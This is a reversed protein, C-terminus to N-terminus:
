LGDGKFQRLYNIAKKLLDIDDKFNGLGHNCTGCLLGRVKGTKHNHDVSLRKIGAYRSKAIEPNGCIACVGKQNEVMEDFDNLTIKYVSKLFENKIQDKTRNRNRQRNKEKREGVYRLKDYNPLKSIGGKWGPHKEGNQFNGKKNKNWPAKRESVM